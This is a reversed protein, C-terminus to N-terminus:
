QQAHIRLHFQHGGIATVTLHTIGASHRTGFGRAFHQVARPKVTHWHILHGPMERIMVIGALFRQEERRLIVVSRRKRRNAHGRMFRSM